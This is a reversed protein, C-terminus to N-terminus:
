SENMWYYSMYRSRWPHLLSRVMPPSFLSSFGVGSLIESLVGFGMMEGGFVSVQFQSFKISSSHCLIFLM